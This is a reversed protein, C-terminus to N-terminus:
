QKGSVQELFSEELLKDVEDAILIRLSPLVVRVRELAAPSVDGSKGVRAAAAATHRLHAVLLLPTTVLIDASPLVSAVVVLSSSGASADPEGEEEEEEEENDDDDDDDDDEDHEREGINSETSFSASSVDDSVDRDGDGAPVPERRRKRSVTSSPAQVAHFALPMSTPFTAAGSIVSGGADPSGALRRGYSTLLTLLPRCVESALV